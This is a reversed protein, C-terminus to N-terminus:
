RMLLCISLGDVNALDEDNLVEYRIPVKITPFFNSPRKLSMTESLVGNKLPDADCKLLIIM